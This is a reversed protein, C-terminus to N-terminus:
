VKCHLFILYVKNSKSARLIEDVALQEHLLEFGVAIMADVIRITWLAFDSDDVRAPENAVSFFLADVGDKLKSLTFGFAFEVLEVDHTTERLSVFVLEFGFDRLDVFVIAFEVILLQECFQTFGLHRRAIADAMEGCWAMIGVEFDALAAVAMTSIAGNRKDSAFVDASWLLLNKGFYFAHNGITHFFELDNGLLECIVTDVDIALAMNGVKNGVHCIDLADLPNTEMISVRVLERHFEEINHLLLLIDAFVDINSKLVDGVVHECGHMAVDALLIGHIENSGHAFSNRADMNAGGQENAERAFCFFVELLKDVEDLPCSEFTHSGESIRGFLASIAGVMEDVINRILYLLCAQALEHSDLLTDACLDLSFLHALNQFDDDVAFLAVVIDSAGLEARWLNVWLHEDLGVVFSEAGTTEVIYFDGGALLEVEISSYYLRGKRGETRGKLGEAGGDEDSTTEVVDSMGREGRM